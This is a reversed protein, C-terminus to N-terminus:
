CLRSGHGQKLCGFCLRHDKVLENRKALDGKPFTPCEQVPHNGRCIVCAVTPRVATNHVRRPAERGKTEMSANSGPYEPRDIGIEQAALKKELWERLGILSMEIRGDTYDDGLWSKWLFPLNAMATKTISPSYIDGIQKCWTLTTLVRSLEGLYSELSPLDGVRVTPLTALKATAM